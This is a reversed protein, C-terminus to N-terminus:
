NAKFYDDAGFWQFRYPLLADEGAYDVGVRPGKEIQKAGVKIGRDEIWITKGYLDLANHSMEIGMGQSFKGPGILIKKHIKQNRRQEIIDLGNIPIAGRILIAHPINSENSVVNFLKHIGYCLYVYAIGGSKYMVETRATRRGGYAHSAKDIEGVYAETESIIAEVLHGNTNTCLVKGLLDESLALVDPNLYYDRALIM